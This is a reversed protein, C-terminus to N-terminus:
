HMKLSSQRVEYFGDLDSNFTKSLSSQSIRLFLLPEPLNRLTLGANLMRIWLDYDEPFGRLSEDYGGIDVVCKKKYIVTPHNMFWRSKMALSKTVIEPHIVPNTDYSVVGDVETCYFLGTSLVDVQPNNILYHIQRELRNPLMIDDGDMRAVFEYKAHALGANLAGAIGSNQKLHILNLNPMSLMALFDTTEKNTSADNILVVEYNAHTQAIISGLCAALQPAPTNYVPLIISVPHPM